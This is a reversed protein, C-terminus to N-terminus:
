RRGLVDFGFGKAKGECLFQGYVAKVMPLSVLQIVVVFGGYFFLCNLHDVDYDWISYGYDGLEAWM